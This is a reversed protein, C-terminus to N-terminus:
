FTKERKGKLSSTVDHEHIHHIRCDTNRYELVGPKVLPLAKAVWEAVRKKRQEIGQFPLVIFQEEKWVTLKSRSCGTDSGEPTDSGAAKEGDSEEDNKSM